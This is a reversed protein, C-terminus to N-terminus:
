GPLGFHGGNQPFPVIEPMGHRRLHRQLHFHLLAAPQGQSLASRGCRSPPTSQLPYSAAQSLHQSGPLSGPTSESHNRRQTGPGTGGDPRLAPSPHALDSTRSSDFQGWHPQLTYRSPGPFGTEASDGRDDTRTRPLDASTARQLADSRVAWQPWANSLSAVLHSVLSPQTGPDWLDRRRIPRGSATQGSTPPRCTRQGYNGGNSLRPRNDCVAVITSLCIADSCMKSRLLDCPEAM